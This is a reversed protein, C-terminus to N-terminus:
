ISELAAPLTKSVSCLFELLRQETSVAVDLGAVYKWMM